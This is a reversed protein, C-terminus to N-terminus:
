SSVIEECLLHLEVNAEDVNQVGRVFFERTNYVLRTDLGVQPHYRMTVLSSISRGEPAPPGPEISVKATAPTLPEFFGDDDGPRQPARSLTVLKDLRGLRM